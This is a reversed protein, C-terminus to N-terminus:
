LAKQAKKQERSKPILPDKASPNTRSCRDGEEPITQGTQQQGPAGHKRNTGASSTGSTKSTTRSSYQELLIIQQQQNPPNFSFTAALLFRRSLNNLFMLLCPSIQAKKRKGHHCNHPHRAVFFLLCPLLGLSSYSLQIKLKAPEPRNERQALSLASSLFM